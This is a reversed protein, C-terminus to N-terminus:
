GMFKQYLISYFSTDKINLLDTTRNSVTIHVEDESNLRFAKGGDVSLFANRKGMRGVKSVVLRDKSLVLSRSYM